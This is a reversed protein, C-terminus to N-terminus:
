NYALQLVFHMKKNAFNKDSCMDNYANLVVEKAKELESFDTFEMLTVRGDQIEPATMFETMDSECEEGDEEELDVVDVDEEDTDISLPQKGFAIIDRVSMEPKVMELQEPTFTLMAILQSCKFGKYEEKLCTAKGDTIEGFKEIVKIYNHTTSKKIEYKAEALEAINKYKDIRYYENHYIQWLACAITVYADSAKTFGEDIRKLLSNYRNTDRKGFTVLDANELETTIETTKDKMEKTM